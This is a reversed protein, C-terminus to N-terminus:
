ESVDFPTCTTLDDAHRTFWEERDNRDLSSIATAFAKAPGFNPDAAFLWDSIYAPRGLPVANEMRWWIIVSMTSVPVQGACRSVLVADGFRAAFMTSDILRSPEDFGHVPPAIVASAETQWIDLNSSPGSTVLAPRM